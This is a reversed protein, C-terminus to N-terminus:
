QVLNMTMEFGNTSNPTAQPVPSEDKIAYGVNWDFQNDAPEDLDLLTKMLLFRLKEYNPTDTFRYSFCEQM